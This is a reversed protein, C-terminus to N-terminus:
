SVIQGYSLFNRREGQGGGDKSSGGGGGGGGGDKPPYSMLKESIHIIDSRFQLYRLSGTVISTGSGVSCIWILLLAVQCKFCRQVTFDYNEVEQIVLSKPEASCIWLQM